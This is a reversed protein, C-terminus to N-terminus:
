LAMANGTTNKSFDNGMQFVVNSDITQSPLLINTEQASPERKIKEGNEEFEDTQIDSGDNNIINELGAQKLSKL